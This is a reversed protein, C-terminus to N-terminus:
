FIEFLTKSNIKKLLKKKLRKSEVRALIIAITQNKYKM